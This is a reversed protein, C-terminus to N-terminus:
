KAGKQQLKVFNNKRDHITRVAVTDWMTLSSIHFGGCAPCIRTEARNSGVGGDDVSSLAHRLFPTGCMQCKVGERWKGFKNGIPIETGKGSKAPDLGTDPAESVLGVMEFLGFSGDSCEHAERFDWSARVLARPDCDGVEISNFKHAGCLRCRHLLNMKM